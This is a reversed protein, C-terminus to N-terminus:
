PAAHVIDALLNTADIGGVHSYQETLRDIAERTKSATVGIFKQHCICEKSRATKHNKKGLCGPCKCARIM